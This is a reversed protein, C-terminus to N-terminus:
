RVRSSRKPRLNNWNPLYRPLSCYRQQLDRLCDTYHNFEDHKFFRIVLFTNKASSNHITILHSKQQGRGCKFVIISDGKAFCDSQKFTAEFEQLNQFTQLQTLVTERDIHNEPPFQYKRKYLSTAKCNSEEERKNRVMALADPNGFRFDRIINVIVRAEEYDKYQSM